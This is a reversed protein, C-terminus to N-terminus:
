RDSRVCVFIHCQKIKGRRVQKKAEGMKKKEKQAMKAHGTLLDALLATHSKFYYWFSIHSKLIFFVVVFRREDAFLFYIM